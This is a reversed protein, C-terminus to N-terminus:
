KRKLKGSNMLGTDMSTDIGNRTLLINTMYSSGLVHSVRKVMWYGSHQYLFLKNGVMSEGFILKIISGPSVSEIGMTSIWMNVFGNVRRFYSGGVKGNFNSSLSNSRGLNNVVLSDNDNDGDILMKEALSPCEDVSMSSSVYQGSDYDFYGYSQTKAGFDSLLQSNDFLKYEVVPFLDKYGQHSVIFGTTVPGSLLEDLSKFVLTQEGGVNRIFCYYCSDGDKGEINLALHRLFKANSWSPQILTKDYNLSQGIETKSIGLEDNAISELNEKISGSFARSNVRSLLNPVNLVGEIQYKRGSDPKRRKVMLNFTNVSGLNDSRSLGLEISNHNKDYPIIEGLLGTADMVSIKFTPLLRDVDLTIVIGDIMSPSVPISTGGIRIDLYYNGVLFM